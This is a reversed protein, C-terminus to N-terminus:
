LRWSVVEPYSDMIAAIVSIRRDCYHQENDRNDGYNWTHM